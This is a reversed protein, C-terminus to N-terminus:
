PEPRTCKKHRHAKVPSAYPEARRSTYRRGDTERYPINKLQRLLPCPSPEGTEEEHIPSSVPSGDGKDGPSLLVTGKDGGATGATTSVCSFASSKIEASMSRSRPPGLQICEGYFGMPASFHVLSQDQREQSAPCSGKVYPRIGRMWLAGRVPARANKAQAELPIM